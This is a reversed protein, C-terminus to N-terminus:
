AEVINDGPEVVWCKKQVTIRANTFKERGHSM